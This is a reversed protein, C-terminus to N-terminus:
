YISVLIIGIIMIISSIIKTWERKEKLYFIGFLVGFLISMQRLAFVSSLKSLSLAVAILLYNSIDLVGIKIIQFKFRKIQDAIDQKKFYLLPIYFLISFIYGIYIFTYPGIETVGLKSFLGYFASIFAALVALISGKNRLSLIPKLINRLRFDKLHIGYVGLIILIIGIYAIFTLEEKLYFVGFLLTFLPTIRSLPYVLSFEGHEYSKSIFFIYLAVFFGFIASFIIGNITLGKIGIFLFLIISYLFTGSIMSLWFLLVSDGGMNIIRKLNFSYSAHLVASIIVLFVVFSEM